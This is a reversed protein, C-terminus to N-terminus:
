VINTKGRFPILLIFGIGILLQGIEVGGAQWPGFYPAGPLPHSGFGFVDALASFAALVFGTGVLGLGVEAKISRQNGGWLSVLSVYGGICIIALGVLFTVIQIFGIVPSRDLGFLSPRVGLVFIFLGVISLGLGFRIRWPIRALNLTTSKATKDM